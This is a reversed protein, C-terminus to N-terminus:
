KKNKEANKAKKEMEECPLLKTPRIPIIPELKKIKDPIIFGVIPIKDIQKWYALWANYIVAIEKSHQFGPETRPYTIIKLQSVGQYEAIKGALHIELCIGFILSVAFVWLFMIFIGRLATLIKSM